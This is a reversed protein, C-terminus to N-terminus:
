ARHRIEYDYQEILDLWRAQQGVPEPMRRMTQLAAHDTRIVFHRGLLYQRYQKLGYTVALLEKRTTCYSREASSLSRSAYVLVRYEGDQEQSLVAGLGENSADTDLCLLGEQRPMGLVPVTTLAKKLREYAEQRPLTWAFREGKKTLEFLPTAV